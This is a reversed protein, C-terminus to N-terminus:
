IVLCEGREPHLLGADASPPLGRRHVARAAAAPPVGPGFEGRDRERRGYEAVFWVVFYYRFGTNTDAKLCAAYSM